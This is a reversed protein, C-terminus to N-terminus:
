VLEKTKVCELVNEVSMSLLPACECSAVVERFICSQIKDAPM